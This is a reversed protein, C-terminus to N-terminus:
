LLVTETKAPSSSCCNVICLFLIQAFDFNKRSAHKIGPVSPSSLGM